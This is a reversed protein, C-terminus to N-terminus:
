RFTSTLKPYKPLQGSAGGFGYGYVDKTFRFDKNKVDSLVAIAEGRRQASLDPNRQIGAATDKIDAALEMPRDYDYIRERTVPDVEIGILKEARAAQEERIKPLEIASAANTANQIDRAMDSGYEWSKPGQYGVRSPANKDIGFSLTEAKQSRGQADTPTMSVVTYPRGYADVKVKVDESGSIQRGGMPSYLSQVDDFAKQLNSQQKQASQASNQASENGLPMSSDGSMGLNEPINLSTSLTSSLGENFPKLFPESKLPQSNLSQFSKFFSNPIPSTISNTGM